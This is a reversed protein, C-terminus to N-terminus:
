TTVFNLAHGLPQMRFRSPRPPRTSTEQDTFQLITDVVIGREGMQVRILDLANEILTSMAKVHDRVAQAESDKKSLIVKFTLHRIASLNPISSLMQVVSTASSSGAQFIDRDERSRPSLHLTLELHLSSFDVFPLGTAGQMILRYDLSLFSLRTLKESCSKFASKMGETSTSVNSIRLATLKGGTSQLLRTLLAPDLVGRHLHLSKLNPLAPSNREVQSWMEKHKEMCNRTNFEFITISELHWFCRPLVDRVFNNVADYGMLVLRRLSSSLQPLISLNCGLCSVHLEELYPCLAILHNFDTSLKPFDSPLLAIGQYATISSVYEGRSGSSELLKWEPDVDDFHQTETEPSVRFADNPSPSILPLRLIKIKEALGKQDHLLTRTLLRMSNYSHLEILEYIIDSAATNWHKCM